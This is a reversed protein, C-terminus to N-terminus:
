ESLSSIDVDLVDVRRLHLDHGVAARFHFPFDDANAICEQISRDGFTVEVVGRGAIDSGENTVTIADIDLYSVREIKVEGAFTTLAQPPHDRLYTFLEQKLGPVTISRERPPSVVVLRFETFGERFARERLTSIRERRGSLADLATVEFAIREGNKHAALDYGQDSARDGREITYGRQQLEAALQGIREAEVYRMAANM